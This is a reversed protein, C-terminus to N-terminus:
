GSKTTPTEMRKARSKETKAYALQYAHSGAIRSPCRPGLRRIMWDIVEVLGGSKSSVCPQLAM